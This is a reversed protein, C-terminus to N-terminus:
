LSTGHVAKDVQNRGLYGFIKEAGELYVSFWLLLWKWNRKWSFSLVIKNVPKEAFAQSINPLKVQNELIYVAKGATNQWNVPLPRM